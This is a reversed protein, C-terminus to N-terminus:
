SVTYLFVSIDSIHLFYSSYSWRFIKHFMGKQFRELLFRTQEKVKIGDMSIKM